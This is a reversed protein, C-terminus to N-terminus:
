ILRSQFNQAQGPSRIEPEIRIEEDIQEVFNKGGLIRQDWVDYYIEQHGAGKAEAM